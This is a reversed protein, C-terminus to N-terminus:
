SKRVRDIYDKWARQRKKLKAPEDKPQYQRTTGYISYLCRAALDRVHLQKKTLQSVLEKSVEYREKKLDKTMVADGYKVALVEPLKKLVRQAAETPEDGIVQDWEFITEVVDEAKIRKKKFRTADQEWKILLQEEFPKTEFDEADRLAQLKEALQTRFEGVRVFGDTVPPKALAPLSCLTLTLAIVPIRM